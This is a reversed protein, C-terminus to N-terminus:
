FAGDARLGGKNRTRLLRANRNFGVAYGCRGNGDNAHRHPQAVICIGLAEPAIQGAARSIFTGMGSLPAAFCPLYEVGHTKGKVLCTQM